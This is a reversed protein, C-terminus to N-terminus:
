TLASAPKQYYAKANGRSDIFRTATGTAPTLVKDKFVDKDFAFVYRDDGM